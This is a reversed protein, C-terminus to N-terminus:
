DPIAGSGADASLSVPSSPPVGLYSLSREMVRRVVPGATLAGYYVNKRVLEPGPDDIVVLVVLKPDEIPGAAIFSANYQKEFFGQGRPRRKGAPAKGLPIQATGSKGFISYRWGSEKHDSNLAMKSEMQAAVKRLIERVMLAVDPRLVRHLVGAEVDNADAAAIRV